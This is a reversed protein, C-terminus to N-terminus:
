QLPSVRDSLDRADGFEMIKLRLKFLFLANEGFVAASELLGYESRLRLNEALYNAFYRWFAFNYRRRANDSDITALQARHRELGDIM